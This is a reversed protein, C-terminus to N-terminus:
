RAAAKPRDKLKGDKRLKNRYWAMCGVNSSCDPFAKMVKALAQENDSGALIAESAVSGVTKKPASSSPKKEANKTKSASKVAVHKADDPKGRAYKALEDRAKLAREVLKGAKKPATKKTSAAEDGHQTPFLKDLKKEALAKNVTSVANGFAEAVSPGKEVATKPKRHHESQAKRLSDQTAKWDPTKEYKSPSDPTKQGTAVALSSTLQGKRPGGQIVYPKAKPGPKKAKAKTEKRKLFDPINLDESM